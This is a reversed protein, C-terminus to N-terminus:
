SEQWYLINGYRNIVAITEATDKRNGLRAISRAMFNNSSTGLYRDRVADLQAVESDSLHSYRSLKPVIDSPTDFVNDDSTSVIGDEGRRFALIRDVIYENLGLSLLVEKSATNANIKGNGYITIYDKIKDFVEKTMHKVLLVEDIIEFKADKAEYSYRLSRYYSDEASGIPISLQSDSDRWDIISAALEQAEIEGFGLVIKFLRELVVQDIKNINIKREEDILGYRIEALGSEEDIYNHCINFMGDGVRVEKFADANNSWADNLADYTKEKAESTEKQEKALEAIAKKIGAEGIFHLKDREELRKVLIIKQRVGAGLCVAFTALLCLSWLVIILISGANSDVASLFALPKPSRIPEM